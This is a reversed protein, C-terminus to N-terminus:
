KKSFVSSVHGTARSWGLLLADLAFNAVPLPFMSLSFSPLNPILPLLLSSREFPRLRIDPHPVPHLVITAAAEMARTERLDPNDTAARSEPIEQHEATGLRDRVELIERRGQDELLDKLGKQGLRDRLDWRAPNEQYPAYPEPNARSAQTAQNERNDLDESLAQPDQPDECDETPLKEPHDSKELHARPVPSERRDLLRPRVNKADQTNNDQSLQHHDQPDTREPIAPPEMTVLLVMLAQHAQHDRLHFAVVVAVAERVLRTLHLLPRPSPHMAPVEAQVVMPQQVLLLLPPLLMVMVIALKVHWV